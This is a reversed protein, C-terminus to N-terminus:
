AGRPRLRRDLSKVHIVIRLLHLMSGAVTLGIWGAVLLIALVTRDDGTLPSLPHGLSSILAFAMGAPLFVQACAVMRGPLSLRDPAAVASAVLNVSLTGSALLLLAWGTEVLGGQGAAYGTALVGVGASWLLFTWTQLRPFRLMTRTLSPFFTHLTGVIAGGLWGGLNFALHAGLLSGHTWHVGTALMVGALIGPVLWIAGAGYWRSAWPASQLSRAHLAKLTFGYIVLTVLLLLTGAVVLPNWGAAEGTVVAVTGFSWCGIQTAIMRHSPPSTALFATVFFQSVGIVLQSVGGLLALHLAVWGAQSFATFAGALAFGAAAVFFVAGISLFAVLLDTPRSGTSSSGVRM